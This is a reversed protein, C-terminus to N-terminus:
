LRVHQPRAVLLAVFSPSKIPRFAIIHVVKITSNLQNNRHYYHIRINQYPAQSIISQHSLHNAEISQHSPHNAELKLMYNYRCAIGLQFSM